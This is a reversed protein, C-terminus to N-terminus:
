RHLIELDLAFRVYDTRHMLGLKEEIRQKYTDVTKASIGLQRGIEPGNYGEAVLRLVTQERDSLVELEDRRRVEAPAASRRVRAALLRAVRPRVYTEGRRVARIADLLEHEAADKMLYGSAGAELAELLRDEERYMTLIVVAPAPDLAVLARTADVGDGRPMDLDVLAVHPSTRVALAVADDGGDAEGVLAIDPAGRLLAKVGARVVIHDDAMIVRITEDAAAVGRRAYPRGALRSGISALADSGIPPDSRM